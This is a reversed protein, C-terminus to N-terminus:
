QAAEQSKQWAVAKAKSDAHQKLNKLLAERGQAAFRVHTLETLNSFGDKQRAMEMEQKHKAYSNQWAKKAKLYRPSQAGEKRSTQLETWNKNEEIQKIEARRSAERSHAKNVLERIDTALRASKPAFTCDGRKGSCYDGVVEDIAWIPYQKLVDLYQAAKAQTLEGKDESALDLFLLQIKSLIDNRKAPEFIAVSGSQVNTLERM